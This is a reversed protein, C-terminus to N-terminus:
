NICSISECSRHSSNKVIDEMTEYVKKSDVLFKLYGEVSHDHENAQQEKKAHSRMAQFRLEDMFGQFEGRARLLPKPNLTEIAASKTATPTLNRSPLRQLSRRANLGFVLGLEKRFVGRTQFGMRVQGQSRPKPNLNQCISKGCAGGGHKRPLAMEGVLTAMM